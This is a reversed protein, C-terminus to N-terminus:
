SFGIGVGVLMLGLVSLFLAGLNMPLVSQLTAKMQGETLDARRARAVRLICWLIGLLGIVSVAAGSWIIMEFISTTKMEM